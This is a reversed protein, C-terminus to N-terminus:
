WVSLHKEPRDSAIINTLVQQNVVGLRGHQVVLGYHNAHCGLPSIGQLIVCSTGPIESCSFCIQLQMWHSPVLSYRIKYVHLLFSPRTQGCVRVSKSYHSNIITTSFPSEGRYQAEMATNSQWQAPLGKQLIGSRMLLVPGVTDLLWWSLWKYM